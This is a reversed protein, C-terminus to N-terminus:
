QVVWRKLQAIYQTCLRILVPWDEPEWSLLVRQRKGPFHHYPAYFTKSSHTVRYRYTRPEWNRKLQGTRVLPASSYGLAKKQDKTSQKLPKWPHYGRGKVRWTREQAQFMYVGVRKMLPRMNGGLKLAQKIFYDLRAYDGPKIRARIGSKLMTLQPKAM